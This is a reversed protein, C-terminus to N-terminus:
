SMFWGIEIASQQLRSDREQEQATGKASAIRELITQTDEDLEEFDEKEM